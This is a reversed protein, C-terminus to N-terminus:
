ANLTGKLSRLSRISLLVATSRKAPLLVSNVEKLSASTAVACTRRLIHSSREAGSLHHGPLFDPRLCDAGRDLCQQDECQMAVAATAAFNRAPRGRELMTRVCQEGMDGTVTKSVLGSVSIM